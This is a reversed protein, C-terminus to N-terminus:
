EMARFYMEVVYPRMWENTIRVSEESATVEETHGDSEMSGSVDLRLTNSKQAIDDIGGCIERFGLLGEGSRVLEIGDDTRTTNVGDPLSMLFTIREKLMEHLEGDSSTIQVREIHISALERPVITQVRLRLRFPPGYTVGSGYWARWERGTPIIIAAIRVSKPGSHAIPTALFSDKEESYMGGSVVFLALGLALGFAGIAAWWTYRALIPAATSPRSTMRSEADLPWHM